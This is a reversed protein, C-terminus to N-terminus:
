ARRRRLLLPLGGLSLLALAAPEPIASVSTGWTEYLRKKHITATTGTESHVTLANDM